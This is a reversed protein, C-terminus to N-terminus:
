HRQAARPSTASAARTRALDPLALNGQQYFVTLTLSAIAWAGADEILRAAYHGAVMWVEGGDAGAIYHYGRVHTEAITADHSRSVVVPGLLHQTADFGPLLAKWGAILDDAGVEAGPSGNLSSYDVTVRDAFSRRVAQWDLRDIAHLMSTVADSPTSWNM